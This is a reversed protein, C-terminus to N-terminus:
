DILKTIICTLVRQKSLNSLLIESKKQKTKSELTM